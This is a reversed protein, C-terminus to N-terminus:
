RYGGLQTNLQWAGVGAGAGVGSVHMSNPTAGAEALYEDYAPSEAAEALSCGIAEAAMRYVQVHRYGAEDLIARVNESMFDVGLV